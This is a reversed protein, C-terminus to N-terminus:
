NKQTIGLMEWMTSVYQKLYKGNIFMQHTEGQLNSMLHTKTMKVTPKEFIVNQPRSGESPEITVVKYMRGEDVTRQKEKM